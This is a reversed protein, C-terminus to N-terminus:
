RCKSGARRLSGAIRRRRWGRGLRLRDHVAWWLPAGFSSMARDWHARALRHDYRHDHDQGATAAHRPWGRAIVIQGHTGFSPWCQGSSPHSRSPLCLLCELLRRAAMSRSRTRNPAAKQEAGTSKSASMHRGAPVGVAAGLAAALMRQLSPMEALTGRKHQDRHHGVATALPSTGRSTV